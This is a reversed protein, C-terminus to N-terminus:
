SEVPNIREYGLMREMARLARSTGCRVTRARGRTGTRAAWPPAADASDTNAGGERWPVPVARTRPSLPSEPPCSSPLDTLTSCPPNAPSSARANPPSLLGPNLFIRMAFRHTVLIATIRRPRHKHRMHATPDSLPHRSRRPSSSSVPQCRGSTLDSTPDDSGRSSQSDAGDRYVGLGVLVTNV